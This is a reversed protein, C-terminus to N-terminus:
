KYRKVIIHIRGKKSEGKIQELVAKGKSRFVVKDKVKIIYDNKTAKVSNVFIIGKQISESALSRSINFVACLFNDLRLSAVSYFCEVVDDDSLKFEDLSVIECSVSGRGVRQLNECLFNSISNLVFILCGNEDTVIDGIMERKIGLGMISGLYDRHSLACFKDKTVRILSIPNIDQQSLFAHIDSCKYFKPVFVCLCRESESYGGYFFTDVFSSLHRNTQMVISIEDASLFKTHTVISNDAAKEKMDVTHSILIDKENM